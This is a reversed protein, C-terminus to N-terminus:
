GDGLRWVCGVEHAFVPVLGQDNISVSVDRISPSDALVPGAIARDGAPWVVARAATGDDNEGVADNTSNVSWPQSEPLGPLRLLLRPRDPTAWLASDRNGDQRYQGVVTGTSSIAEAFVDNNEDPGLVPTWSDGTVIWSRAVNSSSSETVLRDGATTAGGVYGGSQGDRLPLQRVALRGNDGNTWVASRTSTDALVVYGAFGSGFVLM